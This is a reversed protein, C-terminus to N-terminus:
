GGGGGRMVGAPPLEISMACMSPTPRSYVSRWKRPSYQCTWGFQCERELRLRYETGRWGSSGNRSGWQITRGPPRRSIPGLATGTVPGYVYEPKKSAGASTTLFNKSGGTHFLIRTRNLGSKMVRAVSSHAEDRELRTIAFRTCSNRGLSRTSWRVAGPVAPTRALTISRAPVKMLSAISSKPGFDNWM